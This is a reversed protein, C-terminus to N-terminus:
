RIVEYSDSSQFEKDFTAIKEIYNEKFVTLITCDTFSLRTSKQKMFVMWSNEFIGEDIRIMAISEKILEGATAAIDLSKSRVLVVTVMEDFVYDSTVASGHKGSIIENVLVEARPHNSDGEVLYSVLVSTDLFIM